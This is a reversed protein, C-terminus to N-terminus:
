LLASVDIEQDIQLINGNEIDQIDKDHSKNDIIKQQRELADLSQLHGDEQHDDQQKEKCGLPKLEM